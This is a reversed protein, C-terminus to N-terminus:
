IQGEIYGTEKLGRRFARLRDAYVNPSDSGLLGIVPMSKQQAHTALPWSVASAATGGILGIFERRRV